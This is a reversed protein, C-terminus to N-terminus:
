TRIGNPKAPGSRMTIQSLAQSGSRQWRSRRLMGISDVIAPDNRMALRAEKRITLWEQYSVEEGQRGHYTGASGPPHPLLSVIPLAADRRQPSQHWDLHGGTLRYKEILDKWRLAHLRLFHKPLGPLEAM